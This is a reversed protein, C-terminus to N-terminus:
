RGPVGMRARLWNKVRKVFTSNREHPRPYFTRERLDDLSLGPVLHAAGHAPPSAAAETENREESM